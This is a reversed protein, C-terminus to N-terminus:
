VSLNLSWKVANLESFRESARTEAARRKRATWSGEIDRAIRRSASESSSSLPARSTKAAAFSKAAGVFHLFHRFRWSIAMFFGYVAGVKRHEAKIRSARSCRKSAECGSAKVADRPSSQVEGGAGNHGLPSLMTSESVSLSSHRSDASACNCAASSTMLTPRQSEKSVGKLSKQSEKSLDQTDQWSCRSSKSNSCNFHSSICFFSWLM